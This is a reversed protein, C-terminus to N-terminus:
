KKIFVFPGLFFASVTKEVEDATVTITVKGIGLLFGIKIQPSFGPQIKTLTGTTERELLILGGDLSISWAVNSAEGAGTNKVVATVSGFGGTVEGIEIYPSSEIHVTISNSWGSEMGLDDKAKVKVTYDGAANWTHTAEAIAGSNFPGLWTGM